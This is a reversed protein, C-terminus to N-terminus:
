RVENAMTPNLTTETTVPQPLPKLWRLLVPVLMFDTALATIFALMSAAAFTRPGEFDSTLLGSFCAVLILTTYVLPRGVSTLTELYARDYDGHQAFSDRYRVFFHITDDIAVGLILPALILMMIDLEGGLLGLAGLTILVPFINPLMAILGLSLSRLVLVMILAIMSFAFSFSQLQGEAIYDGLARFMAMSGTSHVSFVNIHEDVYVQIDQQLRRIEILGLAKTRVQIRAKDYAFSVFQELQGGGGSEYLLLYEAIQADTQPLRYYDTQNEHVARHMQKLQDVVSSTQMVSPHQEIFQQLKEMAQMTALNRIGDDKGSDIVLELSMTGGMHQDVQNFAVRLPDDTPLDKVIDTEIQLQTLGYISLVALLAFVGGVLRPLRMVTNAIVLLFREVRDASHEIQVNKLRPKGFSLMPLAFLYTLLLAIWVGMAAQLGLERLQALDTSLFALFGCITTLTTLLLPKGVVALTQQLAAGREVGQLMKQRLEAVVHTSDGIGVCILLTPLMVAMMNLSFDLAAVLALTWIVGLVVTATPVLVGGLSRTILALLLCISLLAVSLWVGGENATMADVYTQVIPTGVTHTSLDSFETLIQEIVPPSDKRPDIGIEPYNEFELLIGASRGDASILRNRYAPDAIAQEGIQALGQNTINEQSLLPKIEIGDPIGRISEVNGVWTVELLHPVEQELREVLKALRDLAARNFVQETNILIFVFDDNGFDRKFQEFDLRTQDQQLFFTENSNDIKLASLQGFAVVTLLAVLLLSWIRYTLLFKVLSAHM